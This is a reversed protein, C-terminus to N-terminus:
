DEHKGGTVTSLQLILNYLNYGGAAFALLLLIEYASRPTDEGKLGIWMLLPGVYFMHIFNVWLNSSGKLWKGYAKFSHYAVIVAGLGILVYFLWKPLSARQIGVYILFPAVILVHFLALYFHSDM